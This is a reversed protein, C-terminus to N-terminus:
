TVLLWQEEWGQRPRLKLTRGMCSSVWEVVVVTPWASLRCAKCKQRSGSTLIVWPPRHFLVQPWLGPYRGTALLTKGSACLLTACAANDRRLLNRPRAAHPYSWPNSNKPGHAMVGHNKLHLLSEQRITILGGNFEWFAQSYDRKPRAFLTWFYTNYAQPHCIM